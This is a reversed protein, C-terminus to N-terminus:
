RVRDLNNPDNDIGGPSNDVKAAAENAKKIRDLGEKMEAAREADKGSKRIAAYAGLLALAVSGIIVLNPLIRGWLGTFFAIM